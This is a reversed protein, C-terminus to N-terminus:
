NYPKIRCCFVINLLIEQQIYLVPYKLQLIPCITEMNNIRAFYFLM